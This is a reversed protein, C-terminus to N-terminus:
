LCLKKLESFKLTSKKSATLFALDTTTKKLILSYLLQVICDKQFFSVFNRNIKTLENLKGVISQFCIWSTKFNLVSFCSNLFHILCVMLISFKTLFNQLKLNTAFDSSLLNKSNTFNFLLDDEFKSARQEFTLFISESLTNFCYFLFSLFCLALLVEENFVIFDFFSLLCFLFLMIVMNIEFM